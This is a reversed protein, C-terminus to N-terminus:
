LSAGATGEAAARAWCWISTDQPRHRARGARQCAQCLHPLVAGELGGCFAESSLCLSLSVFTHSFFPMFSTAQRAQPSACMCICPVLEGQVAPPWVPWPYRCFTPWLPPQPWLPPRNRGKDLRRWSPLAPVGARLVRAGASDVPTPPPSPSLPCAWTVARGVPQLGM